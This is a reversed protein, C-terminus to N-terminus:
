ADLFVSKKGITFGELELEAVKFIEVLKKKVGHEIERIPKMVVGIFDDRYLRFAWSGNFINSDSVKNLIYVGVLTCIEAGPYSGMTIDHTGTDCKVWAGEKTFLLNDCAACIIKRYMRPVATHRGAWTLAREM